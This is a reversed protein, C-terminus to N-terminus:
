YKTCYKLTKFTIYCTDPMTMARFRIYFIILVYTKHITTTNTMLAAQPSVNMGTMRFKQLDFFRYSRGLARLTCLLATGLSPPTANTGLMSMAKVMATATILEPPLSIEM